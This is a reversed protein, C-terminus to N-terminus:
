LCLNAADTELVRVAVGQHVAVKTGSRQDVVSAGVNWESNACLSNGADAAADVIDLGGQQVVSSKMCALDAPLVPNLETSKIPKTLYCNPQPNLTATYDTSGNGDIDVLVPTAAVGAPDTTFLFSSLTKEVAQRAVAIAEQRSQMNGIIRLNVTSGKFASIAFLSMLILFIMAVVLTAGQQASRLKM